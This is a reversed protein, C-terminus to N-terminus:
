QWIPISEVRERIARRPLDGHPLSALIKIRRMLVWFASRILENSLPGDELEDVTWHAIMPDGHWDRASEEAASDCLTIVFDLRPGRGGSFGECAKPVLGDVPLHRSRLFDVILPHVTAAPRVGASYANFRGGGVSRLIAEAMLSAGCNDRCVFLVSNIRDHQM